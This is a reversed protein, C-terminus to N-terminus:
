ESWPIDKIIQELVSLDVPKALHRNFGARKAQEQDDKQAYGSLAILFVEKLRDNERIHRAVEYGSMGPLGIDCIIIEPNFVLAKQLGEPGDGVVIVQHGLYQLLESLVEAVDPIDDVVMIRRSLFGKDYEQIQEPNMEIDFELPLRISFRAGKGLGDSYASVSGNHLEVMGKVIALGLGLGGRNRDLSIDAQMFPQFLDPLIESNIGAGNDALEIIAENSESKSVTVQTKGGPNTFKSSNHLINGIAQALRASDANLYLRTPSPIFELCIQKENFMPKHDEVIKATLHNLDTREKKLEVKDQAIRTVDLLDDVLRSLQKTQREMIEKAHLAQESEPSVRNLLSLGMMISALPNRLEHSLSSIFRRKNQNEKRLAEEIQKREILDAAQRALVDLFRLKGEQPYHPKNWHTSIMGLIKGSRSLLPTTQCARIGTERFAALDETGQMYDCKEVDSVIVRQQIRLAVGCTSADDIGVWEWFKAAHQTFGKHALLQLEGHIGREPHLAQMSAFDSHMIRAATDIIREYLVQINDEYLLEVSVSQLLKTDVLESEIECHEGIGANNYSFEEKECVARFKM